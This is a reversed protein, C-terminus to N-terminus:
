EDSAAKDQSMGALEADVLTDIMLGAVPILGGPLSTIAVLLLADEGSQNRLYQYRRADLTLKIHDDVSFSQSRASDCATDLEGQAAVAEDSTLWGALLAMEIQGFTIWYNAKRLEPKDTRVTDTRWKLHKLLKDRSPAESHEKLTHAAQATMSQRLPQTISQQYSEVALVVAGLRGVAVTSGAKLFPLLDTLNEGERARLKVTIHNNLM